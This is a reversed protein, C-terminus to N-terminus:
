ASMMSAPSDPESILGWGIHAISVTQELGQQHKWSRVSHQGGRAGDWQPVGDLHLVLHGETKTGTCRIPGGSDRAGVEVLPMFHFSNM